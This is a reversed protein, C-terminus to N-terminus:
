RRRDTARDGRAGRLDWPGVSLGRGGADRGDPRKVGLADTQRGTAEVREILRGIWEALRVTLLSWLESPVGKLTPMVDAQLGLM